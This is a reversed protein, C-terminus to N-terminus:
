GLVQDGAVTGEGGDVAPQQADRTEVRGAHVAGASRM